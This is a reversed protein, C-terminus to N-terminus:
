RSLLWGLPLTLYPVPLPYTLRYPEEHFGVESCRSTVQRIPNGIVQCLHIHGVYGWGSFSTCSKGVLLSLLSLQGLHSTVYLSPSGVRLRDGM